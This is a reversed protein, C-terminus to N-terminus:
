DRRAQPIFLLRRFNARILQQCPKSELPPAPALSAPEIAESSPKAEAKWADLATEPEIRHDEGTMADIPATEAPWTVRLGSEIRPEGPDYPTEELQLEFTQDRATDDDFLGPESDENWERQSTAEAVPASNASAAGGEIGFAPERPPENPAHSVKPAARSLPPDAPM